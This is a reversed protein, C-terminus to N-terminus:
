TTVKASSVLNKSTHKTQITLINPHYKYKVIAKFTLDEINQVISDFDQNEMKNSFFSNAAKM